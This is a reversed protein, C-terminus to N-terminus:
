QKLVIKFGGLPEKSPLLPMIFVEEKAIFFDIIYSVLNTFCGLCQQTDPFTLLFAHSDIDHALSILSSKYIAM